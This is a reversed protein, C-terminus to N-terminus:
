YATQVFGTFTGATASTLSYYWYLADTRYLYIVDAATPSCGVYAQYVVVGDVTAKTKGGYFAESSLCTGTVSAYLSRILPGGPPTSNYYQAAWLSGSFIAGFVLVACICACLKM